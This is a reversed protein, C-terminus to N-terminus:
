MGANIIACEVITYGISQYACVHAPDNWLEPPVSRNKLIAHEPVSVWHGNLKVEIGSPSKEDIRYITPRCEGVGCVCRDSTFLQQYHPHMENHRYGKDGPQLEEANVASGLVALILVMRM